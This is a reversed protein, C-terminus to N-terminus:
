DANLAGHIEEISHQKGMENRPPYIVLTDNDYAVSFVIKERTITKFAEEADKLSIRFAVGRDSIAIKENKISM